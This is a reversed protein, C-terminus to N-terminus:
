SVVEAILVRLLQVYPAIRAWAPPPLDHELQTLGAYVAPKWGGPVADIVKVSAAVFNIVTRTNDTSLLKPNQAEAAIAFDQLVSLANVVRAGHFAAAGAPSLTPPAKACSPSLLALVLVLGAARLVRRRWAVFGPFLRAAEADNLRKNTARQATYRDKMATGKM